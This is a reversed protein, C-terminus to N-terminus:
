EDVKNEDITGKLFGVFFPTISDVVQRLLNRIPCDLNLCQKSHDLLWQINSSLSGEGYDKGFDDPLYEACNKLAELDNKDFSIVAM